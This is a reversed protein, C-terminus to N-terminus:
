AEDLAQAGSIIEILETTIASQRARNRLLTLRERMAQANNTASDMATMRAGHEGAANELLAFYIRFDITRPLLFDLLAGRDPQFIYESSFPEEEKESLVDTGLPLIREFRPTQSLPSHFINCALYVERFRGQLFGEAADKAVMSAAHFTPYATINEYHRGLEAKKALAAYGRKGCFSLVIRDYVSAQDKLWQNVGRILSHNFSGCLGKDSTMVIMLATREETHPHLFPHQDADLSAALRHVLNMLRRAYIKASKQAQHAKYLKSMAVLKMTRTMKETSRLRHLKLDFEKLSPM